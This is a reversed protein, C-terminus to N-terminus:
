GEDWVSFVAFSEMIFPLFNQASSKGKGPSLTHMSLLVTTGSEQSGMSQLGGPGETWPIEWALTSSHTVMEKGLRDERGLSRVQTEPTGQM